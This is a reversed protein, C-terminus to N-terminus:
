CTWTAALAILRRPHAQRDRLECVYAAGVDLGQADCRRLVRSPEETQRLVAGASFDPAPIM